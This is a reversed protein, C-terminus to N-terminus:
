NRNAKRKQILIVACAAAIICIGLAIYQYYTDGTKTEGKTSVNEKAETDEMIIQEKKEDAYKKIKEIQKDLVKDVASIVKDVLKDEMEKSVTGPTAGGNDVIVSSEPKTPKGTVAGVGEEEQVDEKLTGDTFDIKQEVKQPPLEKSSEESEPVSTVKIEVNFSGQVSPDQVAAATVIIATATEDKGVSLIGSSSITTSSSTAGSIVWTVSKNFNQTGKVAAKYQTSQGVKVLTKGSVDVSTITAPEEEPEIVTVTASSSVSRDGKATAYIVIQTATESAAVTLVGDVMTTAASKNGSISWIVATDYEGEGYVQATFKMSEGATISGGGTMVVSTVKTVVEEEPEPITPPVAEKLITVRAMQSKSPDAVSTAVVIVSSSTEDSGVFLTGDATIYTASSNNGSIAWSVDTNGEDDTVTVYFTASNGIVVGDSLANGSATLASMSTAAFVNVQLSTFAVVITLVLMLMKKLKM